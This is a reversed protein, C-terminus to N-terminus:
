QGTADGVYRPEQRPQEPPPPWAQGEYSPRIVIRGDAERVTFTHLPASAPGALPRGDNLAFRSGHRPCQVTDGEFSGRHLEGGAHPCWSEVAFIQGGRRLLLVPVRGVEVVTPQNETLESSALVDVWKDPPKPYLLHTVNVGLNYVMDGGLMGGLMVSAFGCGALARATTRRDGLRAALSLLYLSLATSNLLAHAMGVRRHHDRLDVWDALGSAASPLAGLIGLGVCVDAAKGYGGAADRDQLDFWDLVLASTWAGLPVMVIAPHIRHRLPTGNLWNKVQRGVPQQFISNVAQQFPAALRDLWAFKASHLPATITWTQRM